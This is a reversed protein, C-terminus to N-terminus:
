QSARRRREKKGMRAFKEYRKEVLKAPAVRVLAGLHRVVAQKVLAVTEAPARHAGGSPEPIIEDIVGLDLLSIATLKLAEAAEPAKSEDRWLIAACGEPSIVSYVANSLMLIVDGVGIGLAGGSGGEGTVVVLIPTELVSMEALNRAIAEAQGRAEAEMGPYAGPTDIFSVIPRRYKEALKMLRLAKRYGDPNAMGFNTQINEEVNRGKQHGILMVRHQDITAFGGIIGSDDRAARDGHLELFETCLGAIFDRILPRGSQRAVQVKQWPTLSSYIRQEEATLKRKLEAIAPGLDDRSDDNLRTLEAIKGEIEALSKEFELYM